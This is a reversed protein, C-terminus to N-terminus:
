VDDIIQHLSHSLNRNDNVKNESGRSLQADPRFSNNGKECSCCDGGDGGIEVVGQSGNFAGAEEGKQKNEERENKENQLENM